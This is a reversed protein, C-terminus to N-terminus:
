IPRILMLGCGMGKARGYGKAYEQLFIKPDEVTLVGQFDVTSFQVQHSNKRSKHQRYCEIEPLADLKFGWRNLRNEDSIWQQAADNMLRKIQEDSLNGQKVAQYKANMLVDHRKSKGGENKLCVTPNVRLKFVLRSGKNLQPTFAKSQVTFLPNSSDPPTMSLIYFYPLGGETIEERYLFNRETQESFLKWLLQHSAYAGNRGLKVLEQATHQDFVVSVKSLFM